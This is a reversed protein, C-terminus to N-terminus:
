YVRTSIIRANERFAVIRRMKDFQAELYRTEVQTDITKQPYVLPPSFITNCDPQLMLTGNDGNWKLKINKNEFDKQELIFDLDLRCSYHEVGINIGYFTFGYENRVYSMSGTGYHTVNLIIMKGSHRKYIKLVTAPYTAQYLILVAYRDRTLYYEPKYDTGQVDIYVTKNNIVDILEKRSDRIIYRWECCDKAVKAEYCDPVINLSFIEDPRVCEKWDYAVGLDSVYACLMQRILRGTRYVRIERFDTMILPIPTGFCLRFKSIMDMEQSTRQM